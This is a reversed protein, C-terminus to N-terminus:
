WFYIKFHKWYKPEKESPLHVAAAKNILLLHENCDKFSVLM